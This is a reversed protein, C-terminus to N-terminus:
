YLDICFVKMNCLAMEGVLCCQLVQLVEAFVYAFIPMVIGAVIASVSGWLLCQWESINLKILQM